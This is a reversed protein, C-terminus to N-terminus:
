FVTWLITGREAQCDKREGEIFLAFGLHTYIPLTPSRKNPWDEHCDFEQHSNCQSHEVVLVDELLNFVLSELRPRTVNPHSMILM